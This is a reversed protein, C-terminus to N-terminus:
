TIESVWVMIEYEHSGSATSSTFLDFAVDAVISTGTYTWDWTVPISSIASLQKATFTLGANAYSKVSSSGGAWTWSTEWALTSGSISDM